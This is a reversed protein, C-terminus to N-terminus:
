GFLDELIPRYGTWGNGFLTRFNDDIEVVTAMQPSMWAILECIRTHTGILDPVSYIPEHHSVRNRITRADKLRTTVTQRRGPTGAPLHQFVSNLTPRVVDHDHHRGYLSTWFGFTLEAVVRDPVHPRRHKTLQRKAALVMKQENARMFSNDDYWDPRGRLPALANHVMNRFPVELVHLPTEICRCLAM